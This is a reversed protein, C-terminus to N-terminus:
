SFVEGCFRLPTGFFPMYILATTPKKANDEPLLPWIMKTKIYVSVFGGNGVMSARLITYDIVLSHWYIENKNFFDGM